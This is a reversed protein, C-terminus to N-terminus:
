RERERKIVHPLKAFAVWICIGCNFFGFFRALWWGEDNMGVHLNFFGWFALGLYVWLWDCWDMKNM